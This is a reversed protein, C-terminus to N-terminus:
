GSLVGIQILLYCEIENGERRRRAQLRSRAEHLMVLLLEIRQEPRAIRAVPEAQLM